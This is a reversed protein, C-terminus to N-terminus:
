EYKSYIDLLGALDLNANISIIESETLAVIEGYDSIRSKSFFIHTNGMYFDDDIDVININKNYEAQKTQRIFLVDDIGNIYMYTATYENKYNNRIRLSIFEYGDPIHGPIKLELLFNKGIPIQEENEILLEKGAPTTDLYINSTLFGNKVTFLFNNLQFRGAVVLDSNAAISMIFSLTVVAFLFGVTYLFRQNGRRYKWRSSKEGTKLYEFDPIQIDGMGWSNLFDTNDIVDRILSENKREADTKM